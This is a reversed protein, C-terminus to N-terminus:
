RDRAARVQDLLAPFDEQADIREVEARQRDVDAKVEAMLAQYRPDDTLTSWRPDHMNIYYQRWGAEVAQELRELALDDNGMLVANRAAAHLNESKMMAVSASQEAIWEEVIALPPRSKEPLDSQIYAWALAQYADVGYYGGMVSRDVTHPLEESLTEIAGAFDGALSLNIGYFFRLTPDIQDLSIGKSAMARRMAEAAGAYDGQWHPAQAQMWGTRVWMIDPNDRAAASMLGAATELEGLAAYNWGLPYTQWGGALLVQKAIKNAEVLRGTYTYLDWLVFMAQLHPAPLDAMRRLMVEARDPDGEEWYRNALNSVIASNFPDIRYATDLWEDTEEDRGQRSLAVGLWNMADVMNPDGRLAEHLAAESALLDPARNNQLFLGRAAHARPLDPALDLAIGIATEAKQLQVDEPFGLVLSIAYEAQAEAYNPDLEIAMALERQAAWQDRRYILDRGALFHRYSELSPRFSQDPGTVIQPAVKTAVLDAIEDQIAFVDELVRDYNESWLQAGKDAVLQATIRIRDGQKRVSGQLLYRVGLLASIKPISYDSSKFQFMSARAIVQLEGYQGLRNRIEESIGDSFVENEPDTSINDFPLVAISNPLKEVPALDIRAEIGATGTTPLSLMRNATYFVIVAAALVLAGLVLYDSGKLPRPEITGEPDAPMTRRIGHATINFFWGFVLALPFGVVAAGLLVNIGTDPIGWGPFFVDAAQMVLWAGVIYLGATTFVRRRRLERIFGTM